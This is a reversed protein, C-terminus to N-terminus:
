DVDNDILKQLEYVAGILQHLKIDLDSIRNNLALKEEHIESIEKSIEEIRKKIVQEM